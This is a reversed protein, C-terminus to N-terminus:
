SKMEPDHRRLIDRLIATIDVVADYTEDLPVGQRQGERRVFTLIGRTPDPDIMAEFAGLCMAVASYLETNSPDTM